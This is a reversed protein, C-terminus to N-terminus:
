DYFDTDRNYPGNNHGGQPKGEGAAPARNAGGNATLFILVMAMLVIAFTFVSNDESGASFRGDPSGSGGQMNRVPNDGFGGDHTFTGTSGGGSSLSNAQFTQLLQSLQGFINVCVCAINNM